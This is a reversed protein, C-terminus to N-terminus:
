VGYVDEMELEAKLKGYLLQAYHAVKIVDRLREKNGRVNARRRNYYRQMSTWCDEPTFSDVQENGEPNGYQVRTYQDIHLEMQRSFERWRALRNYPKAGPSGCAPCVLEDWTRLMMEGCACRTVIRSMCDDM